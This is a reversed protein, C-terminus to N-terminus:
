KYIFDDLFSFFFICLKREKIKKKKKSDTNPFNKNTSTILKLNDSQPIRISVSFEFVIKQPIIIKINGKQNLKFVHPSLFLIIHVKQSFTFM